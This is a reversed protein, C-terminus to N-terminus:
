ATPDGLADCMRCDSSSHGALAAVAAHATEPSAHCTCRCHIKTRRTGDPNWCWCRCRGTFGDGRLWSPDQCRCQYSVTDAVPVPGWTPCDAADHRTM